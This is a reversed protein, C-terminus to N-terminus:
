AVYTNQDPKQSRKGQDQQWPQKGLRGRSAPDHAPPGRGQQKQQQEPVRHDAPLPGRGEPLAQHDHRDQGYRGVAHRIERMGAEATKERHQHRGQQGPDQREHDPDAPHDAQRQGETDPHDEARLPAPQQHQHVQQHIETQGGKREDGRQQRELLHLGPGFEAAHVRLQQGGLGQQRLVRTNCLPHSNRALQMVKDPMVQGRQREVQFDGAMGTFALRALM